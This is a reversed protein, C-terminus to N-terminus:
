LYKPFDSIKMVGGGRIVRREMEWSASSYPLSGSIRSCLYLHVCLGVPLEPKVSTHAPLSPFGKKYHQYLIVPSRPQPWYQVPFHILSETVPLHDPKQMNAWSIEDLLKVYDVQRFLSTQIEAFGLLLHAQSGKTSEAGKHNMCFDIKYCTWLSSEQFM